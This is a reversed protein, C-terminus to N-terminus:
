RVITSLASTIIGLGYRAAATLSVLPRFTHASERRQAAEARKALRWESAEAHLQALRDKDFDSYSHYDM